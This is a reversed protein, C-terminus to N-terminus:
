HTNIPRKYSDIQWYITPNTAGTLTLLIGAREPIDFYADASGTYAVIGGLSDYMSRYTGDKCRITPTVTGGGFTGSLYIRLPGKTECGDAGNAAFTGYGNPM